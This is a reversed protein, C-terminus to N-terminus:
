EATAEEEAVFPQLDLHIYESREVARNAPIFKGNFLGYATRYSEGASGHWENVFLGDSLLYWHNYDWGTAPHALENGLVVYLDYVPTPEGEPVLKGFILEDVTDHAETASYRERITRTVLRLLNTKGSENDGVVLLHPLVSFDHWLPELRREELGLAIQGVLERYPEYLPDPTEVPAEPEGVLPSFVREAAAKLTEPTAGTKMGLCYLVGSDADVWDIHGAEGNTYIIAEREKVTDAQVLTWDYFLGSIDEGDLERRARARLLYDNGDMTFRMEAIPSADPIALYSYQVDAAGSPVTFVIGTAQALGEADTAHVPNPLTMAAETEAPTQVSPSADPARLPKAEGCAALLLAALGLAFLISFNKM